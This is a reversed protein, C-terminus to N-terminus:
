KIARIHTFLVSTERSVIAQFFKTPNQTGRACNCRYCAVVCNWYDTLGGHIKAQIHELTATTPHMASPTAKTMPVGCYCCRHNQAESLRSRLRVRHLWARFDAPTDFFGVPM